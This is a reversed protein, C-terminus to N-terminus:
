NEIINKGIESFADEVIPMSEVGSWNNFDPWLFAWIGIVDPDCQALEFYDFAIKAKKEQEKETPNENFSLGDGTIIIKQWPQLAWKLKNIHEAYDNVSFSGYDPTIAIVDYDYPIEMLPNVSFFAFTVWIQTDPFREKITDLVLEQDRIPIDWMFPEDFPYFGLVDGDKVFRDIKDAYNDWSEQYDPRICGGGVCRLFVDGVNVVAQLGNNAAKTISCLSSDTNVFNTHLYFDDSHDGFVKSVGWYYGFYELHDTTPNTCGTGGGSGSGGGCAIFLISLLIISTKM